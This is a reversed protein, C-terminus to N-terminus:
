VESKLARENLENLFFFFVQAPERAGSQLVRDVKLKRWGALMTVAWLM